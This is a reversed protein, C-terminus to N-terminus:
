RVIATGTSRLTCVAIQLVGMTLVHKSIRVIEIVHM